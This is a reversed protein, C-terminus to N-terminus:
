RNPTDSNEPRTVLMTSALSKATKFNMRISDDYQAILLDPHYESPMGGIAFKALLIFKEADFKLQCDTSNNFQKFTKAVISTRLSKDKLNKTASIAALVAITTSSTGIYQGGSQCSTNLANITFATNEPTVTNFMVKTIESIDSKSFIAGSLPTLIVHGKTYALGIVPILISLSILSAQKLTLVLKNGKVEPQIAPPTSNKYTAVFVCGGELKNGVGKAVFRFKWKKDGTEKKVRRSEPGVEFLIKSAFDLSKYSQTWTPNGTVDTCIKSFEAVAQNLHFTQGGYLNCLDEPTIGKMVYDKGTIMRTLTEPDTGATEITAATPVDLGIREVEDKWSVTTYEVAM